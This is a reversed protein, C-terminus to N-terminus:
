RAHGPEDPDYEVRIVTPHNSFGSAQEFIVRGQKKYYYALRTRDPGYYFPIFAKGTVYGKQDDPRGVVNEVETQTMGTQVKALPTGAPAPRAKEAPAAQAAPSPSEKACGGVTVVAALAFPVLTLRRM